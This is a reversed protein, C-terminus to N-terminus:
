LSNLFESATNIISKKKEYNMKEFSSVLMRMRPNKKFFDKNNNIFNWFLSDWIIAWDGKKYNSMKVIYSSGSIYPKTSMLGGDAFQSMGYVNPVMVWDYSDISLEMFWKYVEDPNIECLLMFNGIIMLREIHNVYGTKLLKKISDDFPDIGTDGSYFSLPMKNSFNWFNKNREESGKAIYVGRIFERWGIIQRIFGETSNIPVGCKKAYDIAERVVFNPNLLGANILPSLISHNLETEEKLIADEYPGFEDFRKELFEKLWKKSLSFDHPYLQSSNLEGINDPFNREIYKIAETFSYNKKPRSIIPALKNKPYKERNYKDYTWEGGEPLGNNMLINMEIRQKKYFSTQFFKKKDARFFSDLKDSELIFLPNEYIQIEINKKKSSSKIRKLLWNDVPNYILIKKINADLSEILKRIDSKEDCSDIYQVYNKASLFKEYSKMSMRHFLLKQKHFNYQKFFLYEEIIIFKKSNKILKSKEFLQNPFILSVTSNSM